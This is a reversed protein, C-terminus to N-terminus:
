GALTRIFAPLDRADSLDLCFGDPGPRATRFLYRIEPNEKLDCCRGDPLCLWVRGQSEDVAKFFREADPLKMIKIM